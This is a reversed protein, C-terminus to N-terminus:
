EHQTSKIENYKNTLVNISNRAYSEAEFKDMYVTSDVHIASNFTARAQLATERAHPINPNFTLRPASDYCKHPLFLDKSYGVQVPVGHPTKYAKSIDTTTGGDETQYEPAPSMYHQNLLAEARDRCTITNLKRMKLTM